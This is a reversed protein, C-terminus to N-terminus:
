IERRWCSDPVAHNVWYQSYPLHWYLWRQFKGFFWQRELWGGAIFGVAAAIFGVFLGYGLGGAALGLGGGLLQGKSQNYIKAQKNLCPIIEIMTM